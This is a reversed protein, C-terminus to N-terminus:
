IYTVRVRNIQPEISMGQKLRAMAEQYDPELTPRAETIKVEPHSCVFKWRAIPLLYSEIMEPPLMSFEVEPDDGGEEDLMDRSILDPKRYVDYSVNCGWTPMPNLSLYLSGGLAASDLRREVRYNQPVGQVKEWVTYFPIFNCRRGTVPCYWYNMRMFREKSQAPILRTNPALTVPEFVQAVDSDLLACDGYVTCQQNGALGTYARLLKFTSSNSGSDFTIDTIRNLIADGAINVSCGRMWAPFNGTLVATKGGQTLALTLNTPPNFYSSRSDYKLSIPGDNYITQIANNVAAVARVIEAEDEDVGGLTFGYVGAYALCELVVEQVTM